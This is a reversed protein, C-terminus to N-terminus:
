SLLVGAITITLGAGVVLAGNRVQTRALEIAASGGPSDADRAGGRWFEYRAINADEAKLAQYRAWPGRARAFAVATVALGAMIIAPHIIADIMMM